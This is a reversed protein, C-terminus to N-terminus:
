APANREFCLRGGLVAPASTAANSAYWYFPGAAAAGDDSGGGVLLVRLGASQYFYDYMGTTSSGSVDAPLVM